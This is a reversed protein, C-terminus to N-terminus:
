AHAKTYLVHERSAKHLCEQVNAHASQERTDARAGPLLCVRMHQWCVTHMYARVGETRLVDAHAQALERESLAHLLDACARAQNMLTRARAQTHM